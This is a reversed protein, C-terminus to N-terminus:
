PKAKGSPTKLQREVAAVLDNIKGYSCNTMAVVARKSKPYVVLRTATEPQSGNHSVRLGAPTNDVVFGLGMSTAKGDATTQRAWMREYTDRRLLERNALAQAWRAFDRIDSKFGGAGHKWYNAEDPTELIPGKGLRAHGATWNPQGNAQVDWEFSRLDLPKVIRERVQEAFPQKGAREVVASLLVYAYSSYSVKAGPAFLLPSEAFRYLAAVPSMEDADKPKPGKVIKGNRYHPIGSM